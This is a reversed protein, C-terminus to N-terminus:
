PHQYMLLQLLYTCNYNGLVTLRPHVGYMNADGDPPQDRAYIAWTRWNIDHRFSHQENEGWGYVAATPSIKFPLQIFQDSFVLGPMGTEMVTENSARRVIKFGFVPSNSFLIDFDVNEPKTGDGQILIPVEFRTIFPFNYKTFHCILKAGLNTM